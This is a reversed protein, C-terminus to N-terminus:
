ENTQHQEPARTSEQHITNSQSRGNETSETAPPLAGHDPDVARAIEMLTEDPTIMIVKGNTLIRIEFDGPRRKYATANM